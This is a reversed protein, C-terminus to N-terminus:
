SWHEIDAPIHTYGFTKAIYYRHFGDRVQYDFTDIPSAWLRIPEIPDARRIRELTYIIGNKRFGNQDLMVGVDRMPPQIIEVPILEHPKVCSWASTLPCFGGMRSEDIWERPIVHDM